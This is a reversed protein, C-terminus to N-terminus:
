IIGLRKAITVMETDKKAGIKDCIRRVYTEITRHSLCMKNAIQRATKGQAKLEIVQLERENLADVPQILAPILPLYDFSTTRHWKM